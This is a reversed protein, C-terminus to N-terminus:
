GSLLSKPKEGILIHIANANDNKPGVGPEAKADIGEANLAQALAVAAAGFKGVQEKHMQIVVGTLTVLGATRRPPRVFAISGGKWDVETWGAMELANELQPLLDQPDPLDTLAVDFEMPPFSKLKSAIRKRQEETLSRPTKLKALELNAKVVEQKAEAARQLADALHSEAEASQTKASVIDREFSDAEKRAAGAYLLANSAAAVAGGSAAKADIAARAAGQASTKADGASKVVDAIEKDSIIQLQNSFLFVGGDGLLEGLVGIIVLMEFFKM